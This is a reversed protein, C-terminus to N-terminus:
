SQRVKTSARCPRARDSGTSPLNRMRAVESPPREHRTVEGAPMGGARSPSNAKAALPVQRTEDPPRAKKAEPPPAVERTNVEASRPRCQDTTSEGIGLPGLAPM